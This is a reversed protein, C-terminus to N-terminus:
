QTSKVIPLDKHKTYREIHSKYISHYFDQSQFKHPIKNMNSSVTSIFDLFKQM